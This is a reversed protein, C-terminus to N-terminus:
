RRRIEEINSKDKHEVPIWRKVPHIIGWVSAAMFTVLFIPFGLIGKKNRKIDKNESKVTFLAFLMIVAISLVLSAFTFCTLHPAYEGAFVTAFFSFVGAAVGFFVNPVSSLFILGDTCKLNKIYAPVCKKFTNWMGTAWRVRQHWSQSFSTPQEDYFVAERAFTIKEGEAIRYMSYEIDESIEETHWGSARLIESKIVFGTGGLFASMGLNNRASNCFRMIIMFYVAYSGSIWNDEPNKTDRYGQIIREGNNIRTNMKAIYDKEVLNDADFFAVADSDFNGDTFLRDFLWSLAYGKTQKDPETREFVRAGNQRAVLATNDTCNDAVVIIDTELGYNQKKLSQVLNGIVKEENRACIVASFKNLKQNNEKPIKAKKLGFIGIVFHYACCIGSFLSFIASILALIFSIAM